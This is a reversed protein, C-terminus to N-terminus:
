TVFIHRLRLDWRDGRHTAELSYAVEGLEELDDRHLMLSPSSCAIEMLVAFLRLIEAMMQKQIAVLGTVPEEPGLHVVGFLWDMGGLEWTVKGAIKCGGGGATQFV